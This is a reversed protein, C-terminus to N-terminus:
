LAWKCAAAPPPFMRRRFRGRAAYLFTDTPRPYKMKGHKLLHTRYCQIPQCGVTLLGLVCRQCVRVRAGIYICDTHLRTPRYYIHHSQRALARASRRATKWRLRWGPAARHMLVRLRPVRLRPVRPDAWRDVMARLLPPPRMHGSATQIVM